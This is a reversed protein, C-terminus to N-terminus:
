LIRPSWLRHIPDKPPIRCLPSSTFGKEKEEEKNRSSFDMVYVNRRMMLCDIGQTHDDTGCNNNLLVWRNKLISVDSLISCYLFEKSDFQKRNTIILRDAQNIPTLVRRCRRRNLSGFPNTWFPPLAPCIVYVCVCLSFVHDFSPEKKKDDEEQAEDNILTLAVPKLPNSAPTRSRDSEIISWSAGM